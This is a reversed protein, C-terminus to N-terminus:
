LPEQALILGSPFRTSSVYRLSQINKQTGEMDMFVMWMDWRKPHLDVIGGFLTKGREPDGYKYELQAFRSITKLDKSTDSSLSQSSLILRVSGSKSVKSVALSSNGQRRLM